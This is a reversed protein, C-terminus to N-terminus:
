EPGRSISQCNAVHFYTIKNGQGDVGFNVFRILGIGSDFIQSTDVKGRIVTKTTTGNIIHIIRVIEEADDM